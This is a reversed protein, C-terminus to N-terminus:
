DMDVVDSPVSGAGGVDALLTAGRYVALRHMAARLGKGVAGTEVLAHVVQDRGVAGGLTKADFLALQTVEVGGEAIRDALATLKNRSGAAADQATLLIAASGSQGATTAMGKLAARVQDFGVVL